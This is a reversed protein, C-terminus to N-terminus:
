TQESKVLIKFDGWLTQIATIAALAATETRLIRPGLQVAQFGIQQTQKVEDKSLGGEPGILLNFCTSESGQLSSFVQQAYPDLTVNLDQQSLSSIADSFNMIEDILPLTSRGSQECAHIVIGNWHRLKKEARDAKLNVVTHQCIIPIIKEVGLEVAKQIALDMREGKSIGQLLSIDINSRTYNQQKDLINAFVKKRDIHIASLYNYGDGNFLIVQQNNKIRLVRSLHHAANKDLEIPQQSNLDMNQYIRTLAM